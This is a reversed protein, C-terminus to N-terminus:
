QRSVGVQRAENGKSMNDDIENAARILLENRYLGRPRQGKNMSDTAQLSHKPRSGSRNPRSQNNQEGSGSMCPGDYSPKRESNM